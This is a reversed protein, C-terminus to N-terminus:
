GRICDIPKMKNLKVIPLTTAILLIAAMLSLTYLFPRYSLTLMSAYRILSSGYSAVFNSYLINNLLLTLSIILVSCLIASMIFIILAQLLFAKSIDAGRVGMARLIGIENKRDKINSLMFDFIFLTAVLAILVSIYTFVTKYVTLDNFMQYIYYSINGYHFYSDAVLSNILAIRDARSAPLKTHYAILFPSTNAAYFFDADTFVVAYDKKIYDDNSGNFVGAVRYPGLILTDYPYTYRHHDYFYEKDPSFSEGFVAFFLKSSLIVEGDSLANKGNSWTIRPRTPSASSLSTVEDFYSSSFLHFSGDLMTKTFLGEHFGEAVYLATYYNTYYLMSYFSYYAPDNDIDYGTASFCDAYKEFDTKLVASVYIFENRFDVTKGVLEEADLGSLSNGDADFAGFTKIMYAAYDTIAAHYRGNEDREGSAPFEGALVSYGYDGLREARTEFYGRIHAYYSWYGFNTDNFVLYERNLYYYKDLYDINENKLLAEGDYDYLARWDYEVYGFPPIKEAREILIGDDGFKEFSDASVAGIDYGAFVNSIGFVTLSIFILFVSLLFKVKQHLIKTFALKFLTKFPLKTKGSSVYIGEDKLHPRYDNYRTEPSFSLRKKKRANLCAVLKDSVPADRYVAINDRRIYVAREFNDNKIVDGIIKGDSMQIIRDAYKEAGDLDHTVVIVLKDKSLEKLADFIVAGNKKDLNGTPEDALIIKPNKTLTRAIAARQKQGGSLQNIKRNELGDLGVKSLIKEAEIGDLGRGNIERAVRLNEIVTFDSLLNFDQFIVGIYGNRYDDADATSFVSKNDIVVEGSDPADLMGIINLLTTKGCGSKGTVFVLGAGPFELSVGDLAKFQNKKGKNYIKTINKLKLM